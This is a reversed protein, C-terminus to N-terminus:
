FLNEVEKLAAAEAEKRIKIASVIQERVAAPQRVVYAQKEERSALTDLTDLHSQVTDIINSTGGSTKETPALPPAHTKEDRPHQRTTDPKEEPEEVSSKFLYQKFTHVTLKRNGGQFRAHLKTVLEEVPEIYRDKVERVETWSAFGRTREFAAKGEKGAFGWKFGATIAVIQTIVFIVALIAFASYAEITGADASQNEGKVIAKDNSGAVEAPLGDNSKAFPNGTPASQPQSPRGLTEQAHAKDLGKMRMYTSGFAISLITLAAIIVMTYSGRDGVRNAVQTYPPDADDINQPQHVGIESTKFPRNDASNTEQWDRRSNEILRTRHLQHGAFHMIFGLVICLTLVIAVMLLTYTDGTGDPAIFTGLLFSFGMGEAIILLGIVVILWFPIPSRGLDGAKKIYEKSNEFEFRDMAPIFKKFDGCMTNEGKTWGDPDVSVKKSLPGLKFLRYYFLKGQFTNNIVYWFLLFTAIAVVVFFGGTLLSM